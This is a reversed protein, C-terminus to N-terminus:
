CAISEFLFLISWRARGDRVWNMAEGDMLAHIYCEGIYEYEHEVIARRRLCYLVQGGLFISILDGVMASSPVLGLYGRQTLCVNRLNMANNFALRMTTQAQYEASSLQDRARHLFEFDISGNRGCAHNRADYKLDACETRSFAASFPEGTLYKGRAASAWNRARPDKQSSARIGSPRPIIDKIVDCHIGEIHLRNSYISARLKSGGSSNYAWRQTESNLASVERRDYPIIARGAAAAPIYLVKPLPEIGIPQDWNPVWSPWNVLSIGASPERLPSLLKITYGLFDLEHGPKTLAFNAVDIYVALATKEYNPIIREILYDSALGLPAYVKDRPDKCQTHRFIQLLELLPRTQHTVRSRRLSDISQFNGMTRVMHETRFYAIISQLHVAVNLTTLLELWSILSSGCLFIVKRKRPSVSGGRVFFQTWNDPVTAEQFVWTRNWWPAALISRIGIWANHTASGEVDYVTRDTAPISSLFTFLDDESTVPKNPWWWPRYPRNKKCASIFRGYFNEIKRIALNHRGENEPRGLWVFISGAQEYIRRMLRVQQIREQGNKQNICIADIWLYRGSSLLRNQAWHSTLQQLASHLNQTINFAYNDVKMVCPFM